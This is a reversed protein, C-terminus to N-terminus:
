KAKYIKVKPSVTVSGSIPDMGTDEKGTLLINYYTGKKSDPSMMITSAGYCAPVGLVEPHILETLKLKGRTKGWRSEIWVMDEDKFGKNKAMASNIWVYMEYPDAERLEALWANQQTDGTGHPMFPTKWNSIWMDYEPPADVEPGAIWHPIAKYFEFYEEQNEWNPIKINNDKLNKRMKEGSAKLRDFYIPHRTKNDPWYYYNYGLKGPTDFRYLVGHNLLYDFSYENGFVQKVRRDIMEDMTYKKDLELANEGTLKFALNVLDYIGGPGNLFGCRDAIEMLVDDMLRTNFLPKVPNRGFAMTIGRVSDDLNQHTVLYFRAYKRELFYHEPFVIDSMMTSEDYNIAFTVTFPVQKFGDIMIGRDMQSRISNAGCNLMAELKYPLYYKEPNILARAMIQPTAHSHAYFENMAVHDPPFKFPSGISEMIPTVVGDENPQLTDACPGPCRNGTAGGPVEMAGVLENIIKGALDFLTGARQSVAGRGSGAFQVPRLPFTFGDIEITSGIQAHEVFERTVERITQAPISTIKEAWEPTYEQTGDKILQLSPKTKVGDVIYEGWLTYNKITADDFTKARSELTDWVLPKGNAKDRFYYGDPGILYPGNTRNKVFWEDFKKLEYLITYIMSLAFALETGPKIPLWRYGKVGEVSLRPDLTVLKMGREIADLFRKTSHTSAINAGVTRGPAILYNCYELDSIYEPMHGHTLNTAYHIACLNRGFLENPTGFAKPFILYGMKYDISKDIEKCTILFTEPAGWGEWVALKRPDEERIKKFRRSVTGIAEEWSIEMWGPDIDPGKEPNTRKLPVKVRYPNYLGMIGAIARPCVKGQNTPSEPNGEINVVVGNKMFVKTSCDAQMCGMCYGYIWTDGKDEVTPMAPSYNVGKRKTFDLRKSLLGLKHVGSVDGEKSTASGLNYQEM